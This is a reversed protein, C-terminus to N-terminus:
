LKKQLIHKKPKIKREKRKEDIRYEKKSMDDDDDCRKISKKGDFVLFRPISSCSSIKKSEILFYLFNRIVKIEQFLILYIKKPWTSNISGAKSLKKKNYSKEKKKTPHNRPPHISTEFQTSFYARVNAIPLKDWKPNLSNKRKIQNKM